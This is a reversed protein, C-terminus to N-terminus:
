TEEEKKDIGEGLLDSVDGAEEEEEELFTDDGAEVEVEDDEGEIDPPTGKATASKNEQEAVEDLSVVEAEVVPVVEAEEVPAAKM